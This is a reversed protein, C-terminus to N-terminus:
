GPWYVGYGRPATAGAGDASRRGHPHRRHLARAQRFEDALQGLVMEIRQGQLHTVDDNLQSALPFLPGGRAGRVVIERLLYRDAEGGGGHWASGPRGGLNGKGTLGADDLVALQGAIGTQLAELVTAQRLLLAGQVPTRFVESVVM